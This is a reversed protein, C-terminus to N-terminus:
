LLVSGEELEPHPTILRGEGRERVRGTEGTEKGWVQRGEGVGETVEGRKKKRERERVREGRYRNRRDNRDM